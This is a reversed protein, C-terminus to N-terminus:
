ANVMEGSNMLQIMNNVDIALGVNDSSVISDSIPDLGEVISDFEERFKTEESVHIDIRVRGVRGPVNNPKQPDTAIGVTDLARLLRHTCQSDTGSMRDWYTIFADIVNPSEGFIEAMRRTGQENRGTAEIAAQNWACGDWTGRSILNKKAAAYMAQKSRPSLRAIAENLNTPTGKGKAIFDWPGKFNGPTNFFRAGWDRVETGM